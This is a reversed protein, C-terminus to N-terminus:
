IGDVYAGASGQGVGDCLKEPVMGPLEGCQSPGSGSGQAAGDIRVYLDCVGCEGWQGWEGSGGGVGRGDGGGGGGGVGAGAGGRGGGGGGVGVQGGGGSGGGVEGCGVGGGACGG